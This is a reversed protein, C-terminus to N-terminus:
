VEPKQRKGKWVHKLMILTSFVTETTAGTKAEGGNYDSLETCLSAPDKKAGCNGKIGVPHINILETLSQRLM